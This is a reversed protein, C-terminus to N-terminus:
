YIPHWTVFLAVFLALFLSWVILLAEHLRPSRFSALVIFVPFLVAGYRGIGELANGTLPIAISLFVYAGLPVGLQKFVAPTMALLFLAALAHCFRFPAFESTFFYEYLGLTEIETFLRLLQQWPPHGLSYGWQEQSTLWAMPHGALSGVYVSYGLFAIPIPALAALRSIAERPGSASRLAMLALPLGILVGHPRTLAALGGIVGALWWRSGYAARVALVILLFFLASPYVRTLFLSFPFVAVYLVTRRATERDGTMRETLGHLAILGTLFCTWSIVIGALWLAADSSGFPWALARMALPYLPFFAVNSQAETSYRYGHSAIDFYWGSDFAIFTEFFVNRDFPVAFPREHNAPFIRNVLFGVAVTAFRTVAFAFLADRVAVPVRALLAALTPRLMRWRIADLLFSPAYPHLAVRIPVLVWLMLMPKAATRASIWALEVGGALALVFTLSYLAIALDLTGGIVRAPSVGRKRLTAAADVIVARDADLAKM